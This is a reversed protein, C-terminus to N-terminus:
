RIVFYRRFCFWEFECSGDVKDFESFLFLSLKVRRVDLGIWSLFLIIERWVERLVSIYYYIGRM